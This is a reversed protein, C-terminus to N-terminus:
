VVSKRDIFAIVRYAMRDLAVSSPLRSLTGSIRSLKGEEVSVKVLYLATAVSAVGFAGTSIMAASVHIYLWYSNLAPVLEEAPAYLVTYALGLTVLVVFTVPLGLWRASGRRVALLVVYAAAMALAAACSFEYMNAWPVRHAALGRLLVGGAHFGFAIITAMVAFRGMIEARPSDGAVTPEEREPATRTLVTVGGGSSDEPVGNVTVAIASATPMRGSTEMGRKRSVELPLPDSFIWSGRSNTSLM